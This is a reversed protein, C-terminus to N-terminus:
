LLDLQASPPRLNSPCSILNSRILDKLLRDPVVDGEEVGHRALAQQGKSTVYYTVFKDAYKAKIYYASRNKRKHLTAMLASAAGM